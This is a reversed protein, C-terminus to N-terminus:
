YPEKTTVEKIKNFEDANKTWITANLLDATAAIICDALSVNYRRRFEGARQAIQNHVDEKRCLSILTRVKERVETDECSKGSLLEAETLASIYCQQEQMKQITPKSRELGRLYDVFISTDVLTPM